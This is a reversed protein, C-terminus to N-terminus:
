VMGPISEIIGFDYGVTNGVLTIVGVIILMQLSQILFTGRDM